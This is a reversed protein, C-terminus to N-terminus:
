SKACLLKWSNPARRPAWTIPKPYAVYGFAQLMVGGGGCLGLGRM